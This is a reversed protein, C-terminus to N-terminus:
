PLPSRKTTTWLDGSQWTLGGETITTNAYVCACMCTCTCTCTHYAGVHVHVHLISQDRLVATITIERERERESERGGERWHTIDIHVHDEHQILGATNTPIIVVDSEVKEM